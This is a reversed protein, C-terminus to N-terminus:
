RCFWSFLGEDLLPWKSSRRKCRKAAPEGLCLEHYGAKICRGVVSRHIVKGTQLKFWAAVTEESHGTQMRRKAIEHKEAGTLRTRTRKLESM